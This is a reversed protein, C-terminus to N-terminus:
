QESVLDHGVWQSGMFQLMGPKGTRWWGGSNTWVWTWQTLSAMWGRCFVWSPVEPQRSILLNTKDWKKLFTAGILFSLPIFSDSSVEFSLYFNNLYFPFSFHYVDSPVSHALTHLFYSIVFMSEALVPLQLYFLYPMLSDIYLPVSAANLVM